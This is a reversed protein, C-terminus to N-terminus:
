APRKRSGLPDRAAARRLAEPGERAVEPDAIAAWVEHATHFAVDPPLEELAGLLAPPAHNEIAEALLRTRDGPFASPRLHRSLERRADVDDAGLGGPPVPHDSPAFEDDGEAEKLREEEIRSEAPTGRM